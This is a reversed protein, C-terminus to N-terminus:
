ASAVLEGWARETRLVGAYAKAEEAFRARDASAFYRELAARSEVGYLNLYAHWGDPADQDLRIRRAWLFGPQHAVEAMHREDLWKIVADGGEPAVWFRVVYFVAADM